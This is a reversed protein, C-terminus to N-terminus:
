AAGKMFAWAAVGLFALFMFDGGDLQRQLQATQQANRFIAQARMSEVGAQAIAVDRATSAQTRAVDFATATQIRQLSFSDRANQLGVVTKALGGVTGAVSQLGANFDAFSWGNSYTQSTGSPIDDPYSAVANASLGGYGRNALMTQGLAYDEADLASM